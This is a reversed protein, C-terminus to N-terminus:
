SAAPPPPAGRPAIWTILDWANRIGTLLMAVTVAGIAYASLDPWALALADTLALAGFWAAPMVGYCVPDTWHMTPDARRRKFLELAIGSGYVLGAIAVAGILAEQAARSLRPATAIAGVVLVTAFMVVTPTMFLRSANLAREREINSTLTVVVFLLGILAGAASGILLYFNEWDQFM